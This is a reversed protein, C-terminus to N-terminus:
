DQLVACVKIGRWHILMWIIMRPRPWPTQGMHWQLQPRVATDKLMWIPGPTGARTWPTSTCCASASGGEEVLLNLMLLSHTFMRSWLKQHGFCTEILWTALCVMFYFFYQARDFTSSRHKKTMVSDRNQYMRFSGGGVWVCSMMGCTYTKHSLAYDQSFFWLLVASSLNKIGALNEEM